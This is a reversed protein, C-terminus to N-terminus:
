QLNERLYRIKIAQGLQHVAMAYKDDSNYKKIVKFNPYTAWYELGANGDLIVYLDDIDGGISEVVPEAFKWGSRSFYNAVSGIADVSNWLDRKGDNNFDVALKRFSKPMFQSLGLAGAWSGVVRHPDYNEERAMLLFQELEKSFYEARRQTCFALTSLADFTPTKGVNKGFFTEVGIIGVIYEPDVNYTMSAKQLAQANNRWFNVGSNIRAETLFQARYSTWGKTIKPKPPKVPENSIPGHYKPPPPSFPDKELRIVSDLRRAKSFLNNLFNESFNHQEVMYRIFNHVSPSDSYIGTLPQAWTETPIEPPRTIVPVSMKQVPENACGAIFLISLCCLRNIKKYMFIKEFRLRHPFINM